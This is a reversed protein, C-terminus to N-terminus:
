GDSATPSLRFQDDGLVGVLEARSRSTPPEISDDRKSRQSEQHETRTPEYRASRIHRTGQSHTLQGDPEENHRRPRGQWFDRRRDDGGELAFAVDGHAVDNPRIQEVQKAHEAHGGDGLSADRHGLGCQTEIEGDHQPGRDGAQGHEQGSM